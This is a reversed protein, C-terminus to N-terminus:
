SITARLCDSVGAGFDDIEISLCCLRFLLFTDKLADSRGNGPRRRALRQCMLMGRKEFEALPQDSVLGGEVILSKANRTPLFPSLM